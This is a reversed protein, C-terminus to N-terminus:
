AILKCYALKQIEKDIGPNLNSDLSTIDPTDQHGDKVNIEISYKIKLFNQWALKRFTKWEGWWSQGTRKSQLQIQPSCSHRSSWGHYKSWYHINNQALKTFCTEQFDKMRRMLVAGTRRSQLQIEPPCPHRSSWGLCNNWYQKINQALKTFYTEQFDKMRRM